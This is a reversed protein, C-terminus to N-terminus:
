LLSLKTVYIAVFRLDGKILIDSMVGPSLMGAEEWVNLNVLNHIHSFLKPGVLQPSAPATLQKGIRETAFILFDLIPTTRRFRLVANHVHKHAKWRGPKTKSVLIGSRSGARAYPGCRLM